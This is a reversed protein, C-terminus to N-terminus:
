TRHLRLTSVLPEYHDDGSLRLTVTHGVRVHRRVTISATVRGGKPRRTVSHRTSHFSDRRRTLYTIRATGGLDAPVALALQIRTGHVTARRVRVAAHAKVAPTSPAAPPPTPPIPAPAPAAPPTSSAVLGDHWVQGEPSFTRDANVLRLVNGTALYQMAGILGSGRLQELQALATSTWSRMFSADDYRADPTPPDPNPNMNWETIMFPLTTGIASSVADNTAKVHVAWNAIHTMCYDNSDSSSCTYEHWSLADPRPTAHQAFYTLYTPNAAHTVPGVFKYSAPAQSRLTPVIANWGNTYTQASLGGLDEENGLELYVTGAGFVSRIEGLLRQDTQLATATGHAPGDLVIVPTAGTVAVARMADTLRADSLNDRMPVRIFPVGAFIARTAADDVFQDAGSSGFLGLNTGFTPSGTSAEVLSPPVLAAALVAAIVWMQLRLGRFVRRVDATARGAGAVEGPCAGACQLHPRASVAARARLTSQGKL